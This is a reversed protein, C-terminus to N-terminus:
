GWAADMVPSLGEMSPLMTTVVALVMRVDIAAPRKATPETWAKESEDGNIRKEVAM